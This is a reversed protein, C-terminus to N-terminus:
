VAAAHVQLRDHLRGCGVTHRNQAELAQVHTNTIELFGVQLMATRYNPFEVLQL